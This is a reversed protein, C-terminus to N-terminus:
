GPGIQVKPFERVRLDEPWDEMRGGKKNASGFERALVTGVQKVLCAVRAARCQEVLSRAWELQMPRAGPGSEGGIIVWDLGALNIQGLDELLPEISLFHVAAPAEKLLDIRPVGQKRNEVSVGLWLNPLPVGRGALAGGLTRVMGEEAFREARKTLVQFDLNECSRILDWAADRWPDAEEILFDSWSCTFVRERLPVELSGDFLGRQAKRQNLTELRRNWKVPQGWTKTRRVQTPDGGYRNQETFMYCHACGASVHKCGVWPNFTHDTWEIATNQTM